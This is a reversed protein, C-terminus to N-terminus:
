IAMGASRPRFDLRLGFPLFRRRLSTTPAVLQKQEIIMQKLNKFAGLEEDGKQSVAPQRRWYALHVSAVAHHCSCSETSDEFSVPTRWVRAKGVFDLKPYDRAYNTIIDRDQGYLRPAPSAITDEM